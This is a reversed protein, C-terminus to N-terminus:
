DLNGNIEKPRRCGRVHKHLATNSPFASGCKTCQFPQCDPLHRFLAQGSPFTTSCKKCTQPQPPKYLSPQRPEKAKTLSPSAPPAQAPPAQRSPAQGSLAQASPAQASPAQTSLAQALTALQQQLQQVVNQLGKIEEKQEQYAKQIKEYQRQRLDLIDQQQRLKIKFTQEQQQIIDQIDQIQKQYATTTPFEWQAKNNYINIYCPRGTVTCNGSRYGEPLQPPAMSPKYSGCISASKLPCLIPLVNANYVRVPTTPVHQRQLCTSANYVRAPTTFAHQHQLRTSAPRSEEPPTIITTIRAVSSPM